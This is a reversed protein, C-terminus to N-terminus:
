VCIFYILKQKPLFLQKLMYRNSKTLKATLTSSKLDSLAPNSERVPGDYCKGSEKFVVVLMRGVFYIHSTLLLNYISLNTQICIQDSYNIDTVNNVLTVSNSWQGLKKCQFAPIASTLEGSRQHLRATLLCEQITYLKNIYVYKVALFFKKTYKKYAACM